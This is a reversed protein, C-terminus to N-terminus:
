IPLGIFSQFTMLMLSACVWFRRELNSFPTDMLGCCAYTRLDLESSPKHRVSRRTIQSIEIRVKADILHAPRTNTNCKNREDSFKKLSYDDIKSQWVCDTMWFAMSEVRGNKEKRKKVTLISMTIPMQQTGELKGSSLTSADCLRDILSRESYIIGLYVANALPLYFVTNIWLFM